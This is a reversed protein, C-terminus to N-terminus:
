LYITAKSVKDLYDSGHLRDSWKLKSCFKCQWVSRKGGSHNIEDGYINRVHFWAHQQCRPICFFRLIAKIINM